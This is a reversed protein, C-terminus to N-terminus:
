GFSVRQHLWLDDYGTITTISFFPDLSSYGTNWHEKNHVTQM